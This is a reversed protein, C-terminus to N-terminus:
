PLERVAVRGNELSVEVRAWGTLVCVARMGAARAASMGSSSDEFVVCEHALVGLMEAAHLYGEPSPKPTNVDDASVLVRPVPLRGRQLLSVALERPCSTVIAWPLPAIRALLEGAGECANGRGDVLTGFLDFLAAAYSLGM